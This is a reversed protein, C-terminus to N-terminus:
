NGTLKNNSSDKQEGSSNPTKLTPALAYSIVAAIIAAVVAIILQQQRNVIVVQDFITAKKSLDYTLPDIKESNIYIDTLQHNFGHPFRNRINQLLSLHTDLPYLEKETLGKPDKHYILM